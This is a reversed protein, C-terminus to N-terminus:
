LSDISEPELDTELGSLSAETRLMGGSQRIVVSDKKDKEWYEKKEKSYWMTNAMGVQLLIM